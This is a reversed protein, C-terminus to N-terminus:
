HEAVAEGFAMAEAPASLPEGTVYNVPVREGAHVVDPGHSAEDAIVVTMDRETVEFLLEAFERPLRVCGHSAPHGPIRGAHLAVGDWTLRQMFPMPANNYLNSHHVKRKQLITFVGTPTEHGPKGSSITSLGIRVGNRYVHARQEPLSVVIVMPGQPSVEPTWEFEGPALGDAFAPCAMLLGLAAAIWARHLRQRLRRVGELASRTTQTRQVHMDM